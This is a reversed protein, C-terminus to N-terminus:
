VGLRPVEVHRPHPGLFSLFVFFFVLCVFVRVNKFNATITLIIKKKKKKKFQSAPFISIDEAISLFRPKPSDKLGTFYCAFNKKTNTPVHMKKKQPTSTSLSWINVLNEFPNFFWQEPYLPSEIIYLPHCVQFAWTGKWLLLTVIIPAKTWIGRQSKLKRRGEMRHELCAKRNGTRQQNLGWCKPESQMVNEGTQLLM